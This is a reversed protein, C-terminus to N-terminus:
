GALQDDVQPCPTAIQTRLHLLEQKLNENEKELDHNRELSVRLENKLQSYSINEENQM